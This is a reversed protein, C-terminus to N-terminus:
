QESEKHQASPKDFPHPPAIIPEPPVVRQNEASLAQMVLERVEPSRTAASLAAVEEALYDNQRDLGDVTAQLRDVERELEAVRDMTEAHLADYDSWRVWEGDPEAEPYVVPGDGAIMNYRKVQESM